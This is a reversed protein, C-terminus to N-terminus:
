EKKSSLEEQLPSKERPLTDYLNKDGDISIQLPNPAISRELEHLPKSNKHKALEILSKKSQKVYFRKVLIKTFGAYTAINEHNFSSSEYFWWNYAKVELHLAAVKIAEDESVQHQHVYTDLEEM